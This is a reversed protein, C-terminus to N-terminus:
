KDIIKFGEVKKSSEGVKGHWRDNVRIVESSKRRIIIIITWVAVLPFTRSPREEQSLGLNYIPRRNVMSALLQNKSQISPWQQSEQLVGGRLYHISQIDHPPIFFSVKKRWDMWEDMQENMWEETCLDMWDDMQENMWENRLVDIWGNLELFYKNKEHCLIKSLNM